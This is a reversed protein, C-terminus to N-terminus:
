DVKRLEKCKLCPLFEGYHKGSPGPAKLWVRAVRDIPVSLIGQLTTALLLDSNTDTEIEKNLLM